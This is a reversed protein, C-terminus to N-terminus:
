LAPSSKPSSENIYLAFRAAEILHLLGPVMKASSRSVKMLITWSDAM